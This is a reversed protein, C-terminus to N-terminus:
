DADSIGPADPIGLSALIAHKADDSLRPSTERYLGIMRSISDCYHSCDSCSAIHQKLQQCRDSSDDDGFQECILNMAEECSHITNREDNM